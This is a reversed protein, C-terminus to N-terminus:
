RQRSPSREWGGAARWERSEARPAYHGQQRLSIFGPRGVITHDLLPLGLLDGARGAEGTLAIDDLSPTPDGSPHNHILLIASAGVRAAARFCDALRINVANQGGQYILEVGLIRRKGDLLVARLQEQALCAMEHGLYDVVDAPHRFARGDPVPDLWAVELNRALGALLSLNERALEVIEAAEPPRHSPRRADARAATRGKKGASRPTTATASSATSAAASVTQVIM